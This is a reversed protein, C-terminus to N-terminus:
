EKNKEPSVPRLNGGRKMERLEKKLLIIEGSIRDVESGQKSSLYSFYVSASSFIITSAITLIQFGFDIHTKKKAKRSEANRLAVYGSFEIASPHIKIFGEDDTFIKNDRELEGLLRNLQQQGLKGDKFNIQETLINDTVPNNKREARKIAYFIADLMELYPLSHMIM